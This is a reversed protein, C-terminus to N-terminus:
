LLMVKYGFVDQFMDAKEELGVREERQLAIDSSSPPEGCHYRIVNAIIYQGHKQHSSGRIFIGITPL